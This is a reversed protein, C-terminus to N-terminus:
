SKELLEPNEYINGIIIESKLRDDELLFGSLNHSQGWSGVMCQSEINRFWEVGFTGHSFKVIGRWYWTQHEPKFNCIIDGEYIKKGNFDKLGIYELEILCFHDANVWEGTDEQLIRSCTYNEDNSDTNGVLVKYYMRKKTKSWARIKIERNQM